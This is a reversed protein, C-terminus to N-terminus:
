KASTKADFIAFFLPYGLLFCQRLQAAGNLIRRPGITAGGLM